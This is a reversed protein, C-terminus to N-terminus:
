LLSRSPWLRVVEREVWPRVRPPIKALEAKREDQTDIRIIECAGQFISLRAWSQVSLPADEMEVRGALVEKLWWHAPRTIGMGCKGNSGSL